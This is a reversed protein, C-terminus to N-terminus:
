TALQRRVIGEAASLAEDLKGADPAGAQGMDARGGGKGGAVAAVDRVLAGANMGRDQLPKPVAAIFSAKGDIVGGLVFAGDPLRDRVLDALERLAEAKDVSVRVALLKVGDVETLGDLLDGTQQKTNEREVAQIRRQLEKNQTLVREVREHLSDQNSAVRLVSTNMDQAIARAERDITAEFQEFARGTIAEIRRVGAAVSAEAIIKFYGIEGTASLHTGGCLEKSFVLESEPIAAVHAAGDHPREVTVVRVREGYKEDFFALAGADIAEQFGYEQKHVHWNERVRRNVLAQVQAIEDTTMGTIHAFDFRFRDPGVLSGAQQVHAGLVTRLAAHLMHTATHNRAIDARRAADVNATVPESVALLGREVVGRHVILNAGAKYTDTVRLLGNPGAIVGTDGVQGGGEPYFPSQDLVVEVEAGDTAEEVGEGSREDGTSRLLAISQVIGSASVTDHGLFRSAPLPLQGYDLMTTKDAGTAKRAARARDRQAKMEAEFGLRDVTLNHEAAIEETLEYPFGYTDYLKFAEAGALPAIPARILSMLRNRSEIDPAQRLRASLEADVVFDRELVERISEQLLAMGTALTESFREEEIELVRQVFELKDNLDPYARGMREVVAAAMGGMFAQELGIKRGFRIARRLIRRLVYGRGENGPLVGDAILFTAARAHDAIVRHPFGGEGRQYPVGSLQAVRDLLPRMLDTEWNDPTQQLVSTIRELGLGTDISPRPLPTLTGAADREFQMFVLNWIELWRDCDCKGLGCDPGCAFEAGRDIHIESCPGCPGTDGMAWFNDKEGLRLIREPGVEAVKQWLDFAEDDDTYVTFWLKEKPLGLEGYLFDWAFRIADAKFYDGFSFNGLMEFFTHHRATRGVADLDNHKGGARVCKQSTTARQYTRQEAGLFVDKFQVMGANVILLTPDARPILSSSTVRAHGQAEFFRLFAERIEDSTMSRM